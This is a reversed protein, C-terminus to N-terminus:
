DREKIFNYKVETGVNDPTFYGIEHRNKIEIRQTLNSNYIELHLNTEGMLYNSNQLRLGYNQLGFLLRCSGTVNPSLIIKLKMDIMKIEGPEFKIKQPSYLIFVNNELLKPRKTSKYHFNVTQLM